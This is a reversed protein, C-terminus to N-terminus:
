GLRLLPTFGPLGDGGTVLADGCTLWAHAEIGGGAAHRAGLHFVAGCGRRALMAKAALAQPLCVARWPVHRSAVRVARGVRWPLDSASPGDGRRRLWPAIWRFPLWAVALRALGLALAAELILRRDRAPYRRWARWKRRLLAGRGAVSPKSRQGDGM